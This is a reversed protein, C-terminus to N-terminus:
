RALNEFLGAAGMGGGVCMSVIGYRAGRRRLEHLLTATLKAGTAGLPHGLAIAGGNVNVKDDPIGLARAVYVAQSAFAENIEFLDVEAIAVGVKDLLKPIAAVPGIGMIEPAVGAVQYGVLRALPELGLQEAKARTMLLTAAAGDSTQSSNGATVSGGLRFAPRLKALAEMSTDARPGEDVSVVTEKVDVKGNKGPLKTKVTVPVIEDDFRHAAQAAIAKQHSQFAFADQEERSVEFQVAVNEATFGMGLYADPLERVLDPNPSFAFGEMPVLSMSETGGALIVEAQGTVIRDCSQAITQLGSSCFRNVTMGPVDFPFGARLLALRAVNLGQPGEPIACGLVVDDIKGPELGPAKAVLARLVTAALDDPRTERFAGRAAKGVPTRLAQVIVPENEKSM